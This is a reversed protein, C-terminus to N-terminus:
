KNRRNHIYFEIDRILEVVGMHKWYEPTGVLKPDTVAKDPYHEKLINLLEITSSPIDM